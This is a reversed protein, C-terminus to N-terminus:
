PAGFIVMLLSARWWNDKFALFYDKILYGREEDAYRMTVEFLSSTAVGITIIPLCTVLYILNLSIFQVFTMLGSATKGEPNIRM